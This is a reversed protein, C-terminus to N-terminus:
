HHYKGGSIINYARYVQEVFFLRVMQHSFTMKSLSITHNARQYVEDSFGYAGGIVFVLNKTGGNMKNRLFDAFETSSFQKGREDLLVVMDSSSIKKLILEGEKKKILEQDFSKTQKIAPVEQIEFSNYHAIRQSYEAIKVTLYKEETKGTQLLIIKM